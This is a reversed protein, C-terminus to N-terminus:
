HKHGSTGSAAGAPAMARVPLKIETQTQVGKSDRFTLTLPVSTDKQLPAKLDMLMIHFGGPKLEVAKGAPLDLATVARMRMVDNEMKMEHVETVGAVPSSAGVLQTATKATLRMFAGSAKQGQVSARAWAADVQVAVSPPAIPTAPAAPTQALAASAAATWVAAALTAGFLKRPSFLALSKM